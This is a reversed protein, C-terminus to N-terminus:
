SAREDRLPVLSLTRGPAEPPPATALVHLEDILRATQISKDFCVAAGESTALRALGESVLGSLLVVRADPATRRLMPLAELGDMGPMSVDLLVLEPQTRAVLEIGALGDGAEGVIEFRGDDELSITLLRRDSASDDIVVVRHPVPDVAARAPRGTGITIAATSAAWSAQEFSSSVAGVVSGPAALLEALLDDPDVAESWLYGQAHDCGLQELVARQDAHEVGEALATLGLAHALDIVSAVIARDEGSRAIGAVFFRDLKLIQVPFQRLYLLSSYGTGFDDVALQVGLDRIRRLVSGALRADEMLVSETIELCLQEPAVGHETLFSEVLDPFSADALQRGSVNVGLVFPRDPGIADRWLALRRCAEALVLEGIPIILGTEEAVPIFEAPSVLGRTPHQWRVLAEAGIISGDHVSVVPQYRLCLEGDRLARRLQAELDLRHVARHRLTADFLEYRHRGRDKAWYMAADADRLLTEPEEGSSTSLAIGISGSVVVDRGGIRVPRRLEELLREALATADGRGDLHECVVVFEDGGFRAVTDTDRVIATFRAAVQRLLEDGAHHGLSDNVVKFRDLDVFLVALAGGIRDLRHLASRLRDTLLARNPLGTLVDTLAQRSLQAELANRDSVDRIFARVGASGDVDIRFVGAEVAIEAGDRRLMTLELHRRPLPGHWDDAAIALTGARVGDREPEPILISAFDRGCVEDATWGFLDTAAHNWEVVAGTADIGIFADAAAQITQRLTREREALALELEAHSRGRGAVSLHGSRARRHTM